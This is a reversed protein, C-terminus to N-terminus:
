FGGESDPLHDSCMRVPVYSGDADRVPSVYHARRGCRGIGCRGPNSAAASLLVAVGGILSGLWFM